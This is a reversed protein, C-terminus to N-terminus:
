KRPTAAPAAIPEAGESIARLPVVPRGFQPVRPPRRGIQVGDVYSRIVPGVRDLQGRAIRTLLMGTLRAPIATLHWPWGLSAAFIASSQAILRDSELSRDGSGRNISAGRRHVVTADPAVALRWGARRARLSLETDELYFFYREDFGGIRDLLSRRVLLSAGVLHEVPRESRSIDTSTTGLWLNIRGGGMAQVRGTGDAEILRGGVIGIAPDDNARRLLAALTTTEVVTDNNLVWVFELEPDANLATAIGANMGASFGVNAPLAILEVWPAAERIRAVSEDTSGNDVVLVRPGGPITRVSDLCATTDRWGNWNLVVVAVRGPDLGDSRVPDAPRM